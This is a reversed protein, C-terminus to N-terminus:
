RGDTTERTAPGSGAGHTLRQDLDVLERRAAPFSAPLRAIAEGAAKAAAPESGRRACGLRQRVPAQRGRCLYGLDVPRPADTLRTIGSM